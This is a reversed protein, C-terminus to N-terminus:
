HKNLVTISKEDLEGQEMLVVDGFYMICQHDNKTTHRQAFATALANFNDHMLGASLENEVLVLGMHGYTKISLKKSFSRTKKSGCLEKLKDYPFLEDDNKEIYKRSGDVGLLLM